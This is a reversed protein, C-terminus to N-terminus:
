GRDLHARRHRLHTKLRPPLARSRHTSSCRPCCRRARTYPRRSRGRCSTGVDGEAEQHLSPRSPLHRPQRHPSSFSPYTLEGAKARGEARKPWSRTYYATPRRHDKLHTCNTPYRTRPRRGKLSNQATEAKQGYDQTTGLHDCDNDNPHSLGSKPGAVPPETAARVACTM